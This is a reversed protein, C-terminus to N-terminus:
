LLVHKTCIPAIDTDVARLGASKYSRICGQMAKRQLERSLPGSEQNNECPALGGQGHERTANKGAKLPLIKYYDCV